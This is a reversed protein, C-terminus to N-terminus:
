SSKAVEVLQQYGAVIVSVMLKAPPEHAGEENGVHLTVVSVVQLALGVFYLVDVTLHM